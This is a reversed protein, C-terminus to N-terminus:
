LKQVDTQLQMLGTYTCYKNKREELCFKDNASIFFSFSIKRMYIPDTAFDYM